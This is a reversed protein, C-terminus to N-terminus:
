SQSANRQQEKKALKAAREEERSRENKGAMLRGNLYILRVHGPVDLAKGSTGRAILELIKKVHDYSLEGGGVRRVMVRIISRKLALPLVEFDSGVGVDYTGFVDRGYANLYRLAQRELYAEDEAAVDALQALHKKIQPNQTELLPLLQRRIWNRKLTEDSNTSDTRYALGEEECYLETDKRSIELFPRALYGSVALMGRLGRTGAGRLLNLLVTEAQDDRHHALFIGSADYKSRCAELAEYRLRRAADELSLGEADALEAPEVDARYFELGRERAYDAVFAADAEAEEGRLHHQVHAVIVQVDDAEAAKAMVDTLALSDAGGSCAAVAPTGPKWLASRRVLGILSEELLGM